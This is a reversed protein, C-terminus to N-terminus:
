TARVGPVGCFRLASHARHSTPAAHLLSVRGAAFRSSRHRPVFFSMATYREFQAAQAAKQAPGSSHLTPRRPAIAASNSASLMPLLGEM